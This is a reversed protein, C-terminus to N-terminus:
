TAAIPGYYVETDYEFAIQGAQAYTDFLRRLDALLPAHGPAGAEPVYSSSLLRGQLAPFDLLQRNEFIAQRYGRAGFLDAFLPPDTREQSTPQYDPAYTRLLQEYGALFPTSDLRRVNWVLVGWGGPRLIRAFERRAAEPAFWHFAQGASVFDVCAPPLTTAEATGAVSTFAPYGALLREGAERMERNPEVGFVRNGHRLWLEALLGTGSGVDAFVSEPVLSCAAELLPVIAPPYGPRYKAYNDVRSSFRQTPDRMYERM